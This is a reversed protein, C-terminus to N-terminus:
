KELELLRNYLKTFGTLNLKFIRESGDWCTFQMRMVDYHKMGNVINSVFMSDSSAWEPDESRNFAAAFPEFQDLRITVLVDGVVLTESKFPCSNIVVYEEPQNWKTIFGFYLYGGGREDEIRIEYGPKSSMESTYKVLEVDGIRELVEETAFASTAMVVVMALVLM